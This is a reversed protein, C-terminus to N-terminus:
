LLSDLEAFMESPTIVLDSGPVHFNEVPHKGTADATWLLRHRPDVIWIAEVGMTVYDAIKERLEGKREDPSLIEICIAPPTDPIAQLPASSPLVTVDPTRYRRPAVHVRLEPRVRLGLARGFRLFYGIFFAQLASHFEDPMARERVQGEIWECDHEYDTRLYEQESIIASTAM